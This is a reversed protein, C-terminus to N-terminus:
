KILNLANEKKLLEEYLKNIKIYDIVKFWNNIYEEKNNQYKLYYAHEWLDLAIIPTFGYYYPTDQNSTNIIKLNNKDDLVLFTYGSGQLNLASEIFKKKFESYSNFYIDIDEKIKGIPNINGKDSMNYFYLSHNLVGGLNFLIEGRDNLNIIDINKALKIMPIFEYNKEKMLRNLNDLYKQYHKNYHIDLTKDDIYPELSTYDLKIKEYM